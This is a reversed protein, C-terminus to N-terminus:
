LTFDDRTKREAPRCPHLLVISLGKQRAYAITSATGGRSGDFVAILRASNDVMWRNRAQMCYPTYTECIVHRDDLRSLLRRYRARVAQPWRSDQDFCPIAGILRIAAGEGDRLDLIEEAMLTDAGQAMGCLFTDCGEEMAERVAARIAARLPAAVVPDEMCGAPLKAPRHGSFCCTKEQLIRLAM